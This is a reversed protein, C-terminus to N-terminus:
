VGVLTAELSTEWESSGQLNLAGGSRQLVQMEIYDAQALLLTRSATVVAADAVTPALATFNLMLDVGNKRVRVNRNGTANAAWVATATVRYYGGLGTPITIRETNTAVSHYADTDFAESDFTPQVITADAVSLDTSRYIFCGHMTPSAPTAWGPVGATVTWLQGATGIAVRQPEGGTTARIMDGATTMPGPNAKLSAVTLIHNIAAGNAHLVATTGEAGRTLSSCATGTRAGVIIIESDIVIRFPAAAPAGTANALTLTTQSADIGGSLTTSYNNAYNEVAM